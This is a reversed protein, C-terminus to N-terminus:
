GIVSILVMIKRSTCAPRLTLSIVKGDDALPNDLFRPLRSTECGQPGGRGTVPIARCVRVIYSRIVSHDHILIQVPHRLCRDHHLTPLIQKLDSLIETLITRTGTHVGSCLDTINGISVATKLASVTSV